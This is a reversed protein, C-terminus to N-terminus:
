ARNRHVYIRCTKIESMIFVTYMVLQDTDTHKPHFLLFIPIGSCVWIEIYFHPIFRYVDCLCTKRISLMEQWIFDRELKEYALAGM